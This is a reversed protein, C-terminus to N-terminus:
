WWVCAAAKSWRAADVGGPGGGELPRFTGGSTGRGRRDVSAYAFAAAVFKMARDHTEDSLYPTHQMVVTHRGDGVPRWVRVSLEIGDRTPVRLDSEIIVPATAPAPPATGTAM